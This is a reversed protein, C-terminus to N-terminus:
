STTVVFITSLWRRFYDTARAHAEPDLRRGLWIGFRCAVLEFAARCRTRMGCPTEPARQTRGLRDDLRSREAEPGSPDPQAARYGAYAFGHLHYLWLKSVDLGSWRPRSSQVTKNLFTFRGSLFAAARVPDPPAAASWRRALDRLRARAAEDLPPLPRPASYQRAHGGRLRYRLRWYLQSATLHRITHAYLLVRQLGPAM